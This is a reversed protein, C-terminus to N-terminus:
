ASIDLLVRLERVVQVTSNFLIGYMGASRAGRINEIKDDIFIASEAAAGMDQLVAQYFALEPKRTGAASSTFIRNFINWSEVMHRLDQFDPQSINTMLVVTLERMAKLRQIESVLEENWQMGKAFLELTQELDHEELKFKESIMTFCEKKELKGREYDHWEPSEMIKKLQFASILTSQSGKSWCCLVDGLDIALLQYRHPRKPTDPPREKAVAESVLESM